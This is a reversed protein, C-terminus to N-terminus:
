LTSDHSNNEGSRGINQSAEFKILLKELMLSVRDLADIVGASVAGGSDVHRTHPITLGTSQASSRSLLPTPPRLQAITSILQSTLDSLVCQLIPQVSCMGM